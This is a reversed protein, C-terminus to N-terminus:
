LKRARPETWRDRSIALASFFCRRPFATYGHGLAPALSCVVGVMNVGDVIIRCKERIIALVKGKQGNQPGDIVQVQDGRVINWRQHQPEPATMRHKM